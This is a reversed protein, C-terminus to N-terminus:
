YTQHNHEPKLPIVPSGPKTCLEVPSLKWVVGEHRWKGFKCGLYRGKVQFGMHAWTWVGDMGLYHRWFEIRKLVTNEFHGIDHKEIPLEALKTM